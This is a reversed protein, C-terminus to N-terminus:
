IENGVGGWGRRVDLLLLKINDKRLLARAIAVRQRQGGSLQGGKEGVLTQYGEDFEIIFNHANAERGAQEVQSYHPPILVASRGM